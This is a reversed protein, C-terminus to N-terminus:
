FWAKMPTIDQVGELHKMDNIERPLVTGDDDVSIHNVSTNGCFPASNLEELPVGQIRCFLCRLLGGHTTIAVTGGRHKEVTNLVGQWARDYVEQMTEGGPAAFRYPENIWIYQQEEPLESLLKMEYIGANMESFAPDVEVALGHYANIAEATLRARTLPSTVIADLPIERFREGLYRLQKKGNETVAVDSIGAILKGTNAESECHRILYLETM